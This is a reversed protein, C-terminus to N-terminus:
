PAVVVRFNCVPPREGRQWDAYFAITGADFDFNYGELWTNEGETYQVWYPLQSQIENGDDDQFIYVNVLGKEYAYDGIDLNVVHKYFTVYKGTGIVKWEQPNITFNGVYFEVDEGPRGPPGMPGECSTFAFAFLSVLLVLKKM